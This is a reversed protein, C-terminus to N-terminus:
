VFVNYVCITFLMKCQPSVYLVLLTICRYHGLNRSEFLCKCVPVAMYCYVQAWQRCM